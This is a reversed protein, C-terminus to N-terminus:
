CPPGEWNEPLPPQLTELMERRAFRAARLDNDDKGFSVIYDEGVIELAEPFIIHRPQTRVNDAYFGVGVVPRESMLQISFPPQPAFVYFGMYYYKRALQHKETPTANPDTKLAELYLYDEIQFNVQSHFAAVYGGLEADFVAASGGRMDGYRWRVSAASDDTVWETPIGESIDVEADSAPLDATVRLVLPPNVDHMFHISDEYIFPVWNKEWVPPKSYLNEMYESAILGPPAHEPVDLRRPQVLRFGGAPGATGVGTDAGAPVRELRAIYMWGHHRDFHKGHVLMYLEGRHVFLRPDQYSSLNHPHDTSNFLTPPGKPVYSDDLDAVKIDKWERFAVVQTLMVCAPTM